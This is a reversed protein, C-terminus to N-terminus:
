MGYPFKSFDLDLKRIPQLAKAYEFLLDCTFQVREALEKDLDTENETFLDKCNRFIIHEPIFCLKTNKYGSSRLESVPYSGSMGSSISVILAPKHGMIDQGSLLLYNKLMAPVMGGWEPTVFVFADAKKIDDHIPALITKWKEEGKWIGEDWFPLQLSPLDHFMCNDFKSLFRDKLVEGMRKSESVKRHSGAVILVNM